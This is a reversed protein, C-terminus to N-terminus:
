PQAPPLGAGARLIARLEALVHGHAAAAVAVHTAHPGLRARADLFAGAELRDLTDLYHRCEQKHAEAAEHLMENATM